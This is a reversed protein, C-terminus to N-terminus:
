TEKKYHQITLDIGMDIDTSPQWELIKKALTTDPFLDLNEHEKIEKGGYIVKGTGVKSEIKKVIEIVSTSRGSGINISKGIANKKIASLKIADVVDKVYCFDRKQQGSSVSIEEDALLAKIVDPILRGKGQYPGYVIFLKLITAPFNDSKSIAELTHSIAVKSASYPTQPSERLSELQPSVLNGYEDSSGTHVYREINIENLANILNLTTFYQNKIVDFGQKFFPSHNIYGSVNFVYDPAIKRIIKKTGTESSLDHLINSINPHDFPFESNSLHMAYIHDANDKLSEVINRGIFGTGGVVLIKSGKFYNNIEENM